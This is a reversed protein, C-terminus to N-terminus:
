GGIRHILKGLSFDLDYLFPGVHVLWFSEGKMSRAGFIYKTANVCDGQYLLCLGSLCCYFVMLGIYFGANLGYGNRYNFLPIGRLKIGNVKLEVILIAM